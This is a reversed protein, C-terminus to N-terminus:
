WWNLEDVHGAVRAKADPRTQFRTSRINLERILESEIPSLDDKKVRWAEVIGVLAVGINQSQNGRKQCCRSYYYGDM